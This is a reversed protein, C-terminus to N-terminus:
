PSLRAPDFASLDCQERLLIGACFAIGSQCSAFM